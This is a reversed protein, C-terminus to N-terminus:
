FGRTALRTAFWKRCSECSCELEHTRTDQELLREEVFTLRENFESLLEKIVELDDM